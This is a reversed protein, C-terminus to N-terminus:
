KRKVESADDYIDALTPEDSSVTEPLELRATAEAEIEEVGEDQKKERQPLSKYTQWIAGVISSIIAICILIVVWKIFGGLYTILDVVPELFFPPVLLLAAIVATPVLILLFPMFIPELVIIVAVLPRPLRALLWYHWEPTEQEPTQDDV